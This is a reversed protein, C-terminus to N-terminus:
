SKVNAFQKENIWICSGDSLTIEAESQEGAHADGRQNGTCTGFVIDDGVYGFVKSGKHFSVYEDHMGQVGYDITGFHQKRVTKM